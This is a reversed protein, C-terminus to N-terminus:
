KVLITESLRRNNDSIHLFYIGSDLCYSLKKSNVNAIELRKVIRGSSDFITLQYDKEIKLDEINLALNRSHNSSWHLRIEDLLQNKVDSVESYFNVYKFLPRKKDNPFDSYIKELIRGDTDRSYEHHEIGSEIGTSYVKNYEFTKIFNNEYTFNTAYAPIGNLNITDNIDIGYHLTKMLNGDEFYFRKEVNHFPNVIGNSRISVGNTSDLSTGNYFREYTAELDLALEGLDDKFYIRRLNYNDFEDYDLYESKSWKDWANKDNNWLFFDDEVIRNASDFKSERLSSNKFTMSDSNYSETISKIINGQNDYENTKRNKLRPEGQNNYDTEETIIKEETHLITISKETLGWLEAEVLSWQYIYTSDPFVIHEQALLM